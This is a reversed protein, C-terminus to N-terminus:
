AADSPAGSQPSESRTLDDVTLDVGQALARAYIPGPQHTGAEVYKIFSLSVGTRASFDQLTYGLKQRTAKLAAGDFVRDTM